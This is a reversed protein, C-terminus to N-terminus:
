EGREMKEILEIVLYTEGSKICSKAFALARELHKIHKNDADILQKGEALQVELQEIRKVYIECNNTYSINVEALQAAMAAKERMLEGITDLYDVDQKRIADREKQAKVTAQRHSIWIEKWNKPAGSDDMLAALEDREKAVASGTVACHSLQQVVADYASKEILEVDPPESPTDIGGYFPNLVNIPLCYVRPKEANSM